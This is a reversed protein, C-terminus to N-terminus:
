SLPGTLPITLFGYPLSISQGVPAPTLSGPAQNLGGPSEGTSQTVRYSGDQTVRVGGGIIPINTIPDRSNGQTYRPM